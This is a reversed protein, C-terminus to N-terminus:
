LQPGNIIQQSKGTWIHEKKKLNNKPEILIQTKEVYIQNLKM